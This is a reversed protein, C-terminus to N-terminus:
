RSAISVTSLIISLGAMACLGGVLLGKKEHEFQTFAYYFIYCPICLVMFGTGISRRFAHVYIFVACILWVLWAAGSLISIMLRVAHPRRLM